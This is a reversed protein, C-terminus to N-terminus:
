KPSTPSVTILELQAELENWDTAKSALVEMGCVLEQAGFQSWPHDSMPIKLSLHCEKEM